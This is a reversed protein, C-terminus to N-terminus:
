QPMNLMKAIDRARYCASSEGLKCSKDYFEKALIEDKAIKLTPNGRLYYSAIQYCGEADDKNCDAQYLEFAKQFLKTSKNDVDKTGYMELLYIMGLNKCSKAMDSECEKEYLVLAKDYYMKSQGPDKKVGKGRKYAAGLENCAFGYGYECSKTYYQIMTVYDQDIGWRMGNYKDGLDFCAKADGEDCYKKYLSVSKDYFAKAKTKDERVQYTSNGSLYMGALDNCAKADGEECGKTNGELTGYNYANLNVYTGIFIIIALLAHKM